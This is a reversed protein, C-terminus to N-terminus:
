WNVSSAGSGKMYKMLSSILYTNGICVGASCWKDNIDKLVRYQQGNGEPCLWGVVKKDLLGNMLDIERWNQSPHQPVGTYVEEQYIINKQLSDPVHMHIILQTTQPGFARGVFQFMVRSILHLGMYIVSFYSKGSFLLDFFFYTVHQFKNTILMCCLWGSSFNQPWFGCCYYHSSFQLVELSTRGLSVAM